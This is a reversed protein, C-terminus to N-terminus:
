SLCVSSLSLLFPLFLEEHGVILDKNVFILSGANMMGIVLSVVVEKIGIPTLEKLLFEM